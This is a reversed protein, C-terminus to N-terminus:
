RFFQRADMDFLSFSLFQPEWKRVRTLPHIPRRFVRNAGGLAPFTNQTNPEPGGTMQNFVPSYAPPPTTGERPRLGYTDTCASYFTYPIPASRIM